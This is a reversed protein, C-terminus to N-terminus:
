EWDVATATCGVMCLTDLKFFYASIIGYMIYVAIQATKVPRTLLDPLLAFNASAM